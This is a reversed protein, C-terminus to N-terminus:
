IELRRLVTGRYINNGDPYTNKIIAQVCAPLQVRIDKGLIGWCWRVFQRYAVYRYKENNRAGFARAQRRWRETFHQWAIYLTVPNLIAPYFDRAQTICEVGEGEKAVEAIERCCLCDGVNFSPLIECHGCQCWNDTNRPDLRTIDRNGRFGVGDGLPIAGPEPPQVPEPEHQYPQPIQDREDVLREEEEGELEGVEGDDDDDSDNYDSEDSIDIDMDLFEIEEDVATM